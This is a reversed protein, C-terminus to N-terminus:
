RTGNPSPSCNNVAACRMPTSEFSSTKGSSPWQTSLGCFECSQYWVTSSQSSLYKFYGWRPVLGVTLSPESQRDHSVVVVVIEWKSVQNCKAAVACPQMTVFTSGVPSVGSNDRSNRPDLWLGFKFLSFDLLKLMLTYSEVRDLPRNYVLSNTLDTMLAFVRQSRDGHSGIM